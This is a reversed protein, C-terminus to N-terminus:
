CSLDIDEEEISGGAELDKIVDNAKSSEAEESVEVDAPEFNM